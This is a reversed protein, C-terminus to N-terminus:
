KKMAKLIKAAFLNTIYDQVKDDETDGGNNDLIKELELYDQKELTLEGRVKQANKQATKTWGMCAVFDGPNHDFQEMESDLMNAGNLYNESYNM